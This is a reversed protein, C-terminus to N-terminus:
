DEETNGQVSNDDQISRRLLTPDKKLEEKFSECEDKTSAFIFTTDKEEDLESTPTEPSIIALVNDIATIVKVNLYGHLSTKIETALDEETLINMQASKNLADVSPRCEQGTFDYNWTLRYTNDSLKSLETDSERLADSFERCSDINTFFSYVSNDGKKQQCTIHTMGEFYTTDVVCKGEKAIFNSLNSQFNKSQKTNQLFLAQTSYCKEDGYHYIAAAKTPNKQFLKYAEDNKQAISINAFISTCLLVKVIKNIKINM